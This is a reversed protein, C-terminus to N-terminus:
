HAATALRSRVDREVLIPLFARVRASTFRTWSDRVSKELEADTVTALDIKGRLSAAVASVHTAEDTNMGM